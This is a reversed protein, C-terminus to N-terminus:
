TVAAEGAIMPWVTYYLRAAGLFQAFFRSFQYLPFFIFFIFVSLFEWSFQHFSFREQKSSPSSEKKSHSDKRGLIRQGQLLLTAKLIKENPSPFSQFPSLSSCKDGLFFISVQFVLFFLVFALFLRLCCFDLTTQWSWTGRCAAHRAESITGWTPDAPSLFPAGFSGFCQHHNTCIMRNQVIYM